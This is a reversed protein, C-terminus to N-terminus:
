YNGWAIIDCDFKVVGDDFMQVGRCPLDVDNRLKCLQM